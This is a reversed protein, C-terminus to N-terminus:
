RKFPKGFRGFTKKTVGWFFPFQRFIFGYTLLFVYYFPFIVFLWLLFKIYFPTEAVVGMLPFLIKRIQVASIGTLGFVIFIITMQWNSTIGWKDKLKFWFSM